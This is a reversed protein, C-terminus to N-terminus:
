QVRVSEITQLFLVRQCIALRHVGIAILPFIKNSFQQHRYLSYNRYKGIICETLKYSLEMTM